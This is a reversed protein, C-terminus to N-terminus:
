VDCPVINEHGYRVINLLSSLWVPTASTSLQSSTAMTDDDPFLGKQNAGDKIDDIGTGGRSDVSENLAFSSISTGGDFVETNVELTSIGGNNQDREIPTAVGAESSAPKIGEAQPM